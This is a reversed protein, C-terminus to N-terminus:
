SLRAAGQCREQEEWPSMLEDTRWVGRPTVTVNANVKHCWTESDFTVQGLNVAPFSPNRVLGM